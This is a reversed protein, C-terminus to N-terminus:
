YLSRVSSLNGHSMNPLAGKFPTFVQAAGAAKRSHM